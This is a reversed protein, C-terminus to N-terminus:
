KKRRGFSSLNRSMVQARTRKTKKSPDNMISSWGAIHFACAIDLAGGELDVDEVYVEFNGCMIALFLAPDPRWNLNTVVEDTSTNLSISFPIVEVEDEAWMPNLNLGSTSESLVFDTSSGYVGFGSSFSPPNTAKPNIQDNHTDFISTAGSGSLKLGVAGDFTAQNPYSTPNNYSDSIPARFDYAQNDRMNIGQTKMANAMAKFASRYAACRGRTPSYYRLEGQVSGGTSLGVSPQVQLDVGVLKFYNGQRVMRQLQESLQGPLDVYFKQGVTTVTHRTNVTHIQGLSKAM